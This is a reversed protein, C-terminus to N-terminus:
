KDSALVGPSNAFQQFVLTLHHNTGIKRWTKANGTSTNGLACEHIYKDGYSFNEGSFQPSKIVRECLTKAQGWKGHKPSRVSFGRFILFESKSTYRISAAMQIVRPDIQNYNPNQIIYDGFTPYRPLSAKLLKNYISWEIRPISGDTGTSIASLNDPMSTAIFILNRWSNIDPISQLSGLVLKSTRKEHKPEIFEYDIILDIENTDCPFGRTTLLLDEIEDFDEDRLRLCVGTKYENIIEHIASQYNEGRSPSTVPIAKINIGELHDFIFKLPHTGSEMTEEDDLCIQLADIYLTNENWCEEIQKAFNSLHQDISKKFEEKDFDWDIPPIEIIPSINDKINKELEKIASQEGRKWRIVPVYESKQM